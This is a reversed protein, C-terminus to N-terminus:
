ALGGARTRRPVLSPSSLPGPQAENQGHPSPGQRAPPGRRGQRNLLGLQKQGFQFRPVIEVRREFVKVCDDFRIQDVLFEFAAHRVFPRRQQGILGQGDGVCHLAVLQQLLRDGRERGEGVLLRIVGLRLLDADLDAIDIQRHGFGLQLLGLPRIGVLLGELVLRPLQGGVRVFLRHRCFFQNLLFSDGQFFFLGLPPFLLIPQVFEPNRPQFGLQQLGRQQVFQCFGVIGVAFTTFLLQGLGAVLEFGQRFLMLATDRPQEGADALRLAQHFQALM